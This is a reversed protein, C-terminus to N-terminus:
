CLEGITRLLADYVSRDVLSAVTAGSSVVHASFVADHRPATVNDYLADSVCKKIALPLERPHPLPGHMLM